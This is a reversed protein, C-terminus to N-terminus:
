DIKVLLTGKLGATGSATELKIKVSVTTDSIVTAKLMAIVYDNAASDATTHVVSINSASPTTFFNHSVSITQVATSDLSISDAKTIREKSTKTAIHSGDTDVQEWIVNYKNTLRNLNFAGVDLLTQLPKSQSTINFINGIAVSANLKVVNQCNETTLNIINRQGGGYVFVNSNIYSRVIMNIENNYGTMTICDGICTDGLRVKGNIKHNNGSIEITNGWGSLEYDAPNKDWFIDLNSIYKGNNGETQLSINRNNHLDMIGIQIRSDGLYCGNLNGESMLQRAKFRINDKVRFGFGTDCGWTHIENIECTKDIVVSDIDSAPYLVSDNLTNDITGDFKRAHYGAKGINIFDLTSDPSGRYVLGEYGSLTCQFSIRATESDKCEFYGAVEPINEMRIRDIEYNRGYIKFGYGVTNNHSYYDGDAVPDGNEDYEIYNGNIYMDFICFGQPLVEYYDSPYIGGNHIASLDEFNYTKFIDCNAGDALKIKTIMKGRGQYRINSYILIPEDIVYESKSFFLTGKGGNDLIYDLAREIAPSDITDSDEAFDEVCVLINNLRGNLFNDNQLLKDFNGKIKSKSVSLKTDATIDQLSINPLAM